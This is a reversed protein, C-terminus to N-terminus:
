FRPSSRKVRWQLASLIWLYQCVLPDAFALPGPIVDASM